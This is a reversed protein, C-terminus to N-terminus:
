AEVRYWADGARFWLVGDRGYAREQDLAGPLRLVGRRREAWRDGATRGYWALEGGLTLFVGRDGTIAFGLPERFPSPVSRSIGAAPDIRTLFGVLEESYWALWAAKNETAAALGELPWEPLEGKGPRWVVRGGTDTGILGPHALPHDGYVGEDGFAMWIRGDRDTTLAQLDDGLALDRVPRGEDDLVVANPSTDDDGRGARHAAVLVRHGPLLALHGPEVPVQVLSRRREGRATVTVLEGDFPPLVSRGQGDVLLVALAGDPGVTWAVARRGARVDQEPLRWVEAAPVTAPAKPM